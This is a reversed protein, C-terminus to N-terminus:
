HDTLIGCLLWCILVLYISRSPNKKEETANTEDESGPHLSQTMTENSAVSLWRCWMCAETSDAPLVICTLQDGTAVLLRVCVPCPEWTIYLSGTSTINQSSTCAHPKQSTLRIYLVPWHRAVNVNDATKYRSDSSISAMNVCDVFM